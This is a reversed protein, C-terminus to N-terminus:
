VKWKTRTTLLMLPLFSRLAVAEVITLDALGFGVFAELEKQSLKLRM